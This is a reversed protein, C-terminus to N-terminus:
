HHHHGTTKDKKRPARVATETDKSKGGASLLPKHIIAHVTEVCASRREEIIQSMQEVALLPDEQVFFFGGFLQKMGETLISIVQSSGAIPPLHGLHVPVGSAAFYTGISIAKETTWEPASGVIPLAAMDIDFQEALESFLVLMRSCDVCSGMHLIPPLEHEKCFAQLGASANDAMELDMMGAKAVAIASCGTGVVLIDRKVLERAITVHMYDQTIKPNNCGVISVIGRIQGTRIAEALPSLSGGLLHAIEEVSFGVKAPVAHPPIFVKSKNRKPFNEIATTIIDRAVKNATHEDYQIHIAGPFMAQDSTSIFKTHFCRTLNVMSPLICQVDVVIAEVAGTMVALEQHLHNGAVHVGKRMLVENVTCCMGIMKVGDAGYSRALEQMEDSQAWDIIKESLAPEHGHVVINVYREDIVGLNAMATKVQPTGFLIDQLETAIMSGGWGDALACRIGQILLSLPDHDNGFHTRHLIDVPERDIGRPLIGCKRGVVESLKEELAMLRKLQRPPMYGQLFRFPKHDQSGFCSLAADAVRRAISAISRGRTNIGLKSAVYKLKKRDKLVFETNEGSAILKLLLAPKRGHDSHSSAGAAIMRVLNRAVITDADAGCVGRDPKKGSPNIRCPGMSCIRCCIGDQGIKCQPQQLSLRDWITELQERKAIELLAQAAPDISKETVNKSV